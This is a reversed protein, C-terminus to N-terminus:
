SRQYIGVLVLAQHRADDLASHLVGLHAPKEFGYLDQALQIATRLDREQRFQWPLPIGCVRYANTLMTFDFSPGKCWILALEADPADGQSFAAFEALADRIPVQNDQTAAWAEPSQRKWWEQTEPDITMGLATCSATDINRLFEEGMRGALPDFKVAGISLIVGTPLVDLSEIDVMIHRPM